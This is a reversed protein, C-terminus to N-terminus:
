SSPGGGCLPNRSALQPAAALRETEIECLMLEDLKTPNKINGVSAALAKLAVTSRTSRRGDDVEGIASAM